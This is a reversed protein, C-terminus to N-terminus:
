PVARCSNWTGSIAPPQRRLAADLTQLMGSLKLQRLVQGLATRDTVAVPRIM